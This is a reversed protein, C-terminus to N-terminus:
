KVAFSVSGPLDNDNRDVFKEVVKEVVMEKQETLRKELDANDESLKDVRAKLMQILDNLQAKEESFQKKLEAIARENPNEANDLLWTKAVYM